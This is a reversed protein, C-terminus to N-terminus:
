FCDDSETLLNMMNATLERLDGDLEVNRLTNTPGWMIGRDNAILKDVPGGGGIQILLVFLNPLTPKLPSDAVLAKNM